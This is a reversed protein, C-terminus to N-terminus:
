NWPLWWRRRVAGHGPSYPKWPIRIRQARELDSPLELAMVVASAQDLAHTMVRILRKIEFHLWQDDVDDRERHLEWQRVLDNALIAVDVAGHYMPPRLPHWFTENLREGGDLTRTLLDGFESQMSSGYALLHSVGEVMTPKLVTRENERITAIQDEAVAAVLTLYAM